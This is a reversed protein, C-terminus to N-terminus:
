NQPIASVKLLEESAQKQEVAEFYTAALYSPHNKRRSAEEKTEPFGPNQLYRRFDRMEALKVEIQLAQIKLVEAYAAVASDHSLPTAQTIAKKLAEQAKILKKETSNLTEETAKPMRARQLALLKSALLKEKSNLERDKCLFLVMDCVERDFLLDPNQLIISFYSRKSVESRIGKIEMEVSHEKTRARNPRIRTIKTAEQLTDLSVSGTMVSGYSAKPLAEEYPRYLAKPAKLRAIQHNWMLVACRMVEANEKQKESSLPPKQHPPITECRGLIEAAKKLTVPTLKRPPMGMLKRYSSEDLLGKNLCDDLVEDKVNQQIIGNLKHFLAFGMEHVENPRLRKAYCAGILQQRQMQPLLQATEPAIAGFVELTHTWKAKWPILERYEQIQLKAKLLWASLMRWGPLKSIVSKTEEIAKAIPQCALQDELGIASRELISRTYTYGAKEFKDRSVTIKLGTHVPYGAEKLMTARIQPAIGSHALVTAEMGGGPECLTIDFFDQRRHVAIRFAHNLHGANMFFSEDDKLNLV